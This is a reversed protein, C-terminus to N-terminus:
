YHNAPTVEIDAAWPLIGVRRVRFHDGDEKIVELAAGCGYNVAISLLRTVKDRHVIDGAGVNDGGRPLPQAATYDVDSGSPFSSDSVQPAQKRSMVGM